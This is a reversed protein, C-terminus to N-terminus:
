KSKCFRWLPGYISQDSMYSQFMKNSIDCVELVKLIQPIDSVKELREWNQELFYQYDFLKGTSFSFDIEDRFYLKLGYYYAQTCNFFNKFKTFKSYDYLNDVLSLDFKILDDLSPVFKPQFIFLWRKPGSIIEKPTVGIISLPRVRELFGSILLGEVDGKSPFLSTRATPYDSFLYSFLFDLPDEVPPHTHFHILTYSPFYVEPFNKWYLHREDDPLHGLNGLIEKENKVPIKFDKKLEDCNEILKKLELQIEEKQALEELTYKDLYKDLKKIISCYKAASPSFMSFNSGKKITDPFIAAEYGVIKKIEFGTEIGKEETEQLCRFVRERFADSDLLFKIFENSVKEEIANLKISIPRSMPM